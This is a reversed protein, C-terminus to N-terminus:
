EVARINAMAASQHVRVVSLLKGDLKDRVFQLADDFGVFYGFLM